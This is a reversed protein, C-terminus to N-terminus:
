ISVKSVKLKFQLKNLLAALAIGMLYPGARCWPKVLYDIFWTNVRAGLTAADFSLPLSLSLYDAILLTLHSDSQSTSTHRQLRKGMLASSVPSASVSSTSSPSSPTGSAHSGTVSHSLTLIASFTFRIPLRFM